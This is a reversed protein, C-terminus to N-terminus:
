NSSPIQPKNKDITELLNFPANGVTTELYERFKPSLRAYKITLEIEKVSPYILSSEVDLIDKTELNYSAKITRLMGLNYALAMKSKKVCKFMNRFSLHGLGIYLDNKAASALVQSNKDLIPTNGLSDKKCQKINTALLATSKTVNKQLGVLIEEQSVETSDSANISFSFLMLVGVLLTSKVVMECVKGSSYISIIM